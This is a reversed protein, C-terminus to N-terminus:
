QFPMIILLYAIHKIQDRDLFDRWRSDVEISLQSLFSGSLGIM